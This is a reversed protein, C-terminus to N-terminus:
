SNGTDVAGKGFNPPPEDFPAGAAEAAQRRQYWARWAADAEARGEAQAEQRKRRSFYAAIVM